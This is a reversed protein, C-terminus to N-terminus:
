MKVINIYKTIEFLIFNFKDAILTGFISEDLYFNKVHTHTYYRELLFSTNNFLSFTLPILLVNQSNMHM